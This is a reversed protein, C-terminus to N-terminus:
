AEEIECSESLEDLIEPKIYAIYPEIQKVREWLASFTILWYKAAAEVVETLFFTKPLWRVSSVCLLEEKTASNNISLIIAYIKTFRDFL